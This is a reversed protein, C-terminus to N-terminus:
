TQENIRKDVLSSGGFTTRDADSLLQTEARVKRSKQTWTQCVHFKVDWLPSSRFFGRFRPSFAGSM